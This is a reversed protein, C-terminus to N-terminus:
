QPIIPVRLLTRDWRIDMNVAPPADSFAITLQETEQTSQVPIDVKAVDKSYDPENHAASVGAESNLSIQFSSAGPVAYMRYSGAPVPKGGFLVNKSFTIDTSANAGLRWYQGYSLLPKAAVEGFIVRGNKYPRSYEVKIDVGNGSFTAIDKPSKPSAFLQYLVFGIIGIGLIAILAYTVRKMCNPKTM